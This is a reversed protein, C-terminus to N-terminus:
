PKAINHAPQGLADSASESQGPSNEKPCEARKMSQACNVIVMSGLWQQLTAVCRMLTSKGAGNPGLLGFMGPPIDLTVHDLARTRNDYSHSLGAISLM